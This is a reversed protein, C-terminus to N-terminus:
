DAGTSKNQYNISKMFLRVENWIHGLAQRTRTTFREVLAYVRTSGLSGLLEPDLVTGQFFGDAVGKRGQSLVAPGM